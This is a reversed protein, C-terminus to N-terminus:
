LPNEDGRAMMAHYQMKVGPQITECWAIRTNKFAVEIPVEKFESESALFRCLYKVKTGAKVDEAVVASIPQPHGEQVVTVDVIRAM